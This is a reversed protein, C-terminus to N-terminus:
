SVIGHEIRALTDLVLEYGVETDLLALPAEGGLSRNTRSIWAGALGSDELVEVARSWVRHARYLRDLEPGSLLANKSIRNKMATRSLRLSECLGDRSIGFREALDSILSAPMGTRMGKIVESTDGSLLRAPALTKVRMARSGVQEGLISDAAALTAKSGRRKDVARKAAEMAIGLILTLIPLELSIARAM